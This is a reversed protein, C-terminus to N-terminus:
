GKEYGIMKLVMKLEEINNIVGRFAVMHNVFSKKKKFDYNIAIVTANKMCGKEGHYYELTYSFGREDERKYRFDDDSPIDKSIVKSYDTKYSEFGLDEFEKKSVRM